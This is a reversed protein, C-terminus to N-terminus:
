GHWKVNAGLLLGFTLISLLYVLGKVGFLKRMKEEGKATYGEWKM